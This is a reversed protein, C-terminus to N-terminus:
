QDEEGRWKFDYFGPREELIKKLYYDGYSVGKPSRGNNKTVDNIFGDNYKVVLYKWLDQWRNVVMEAENVSYNTLFDVALKPDSKHLTLAAQEVAPQVKFFKSELEQQVPKIDEYVYSYKTYSLNAVLNFVWFASEFSFEKISGFSYSPPTRNMCCYLPMYVNNYNDDVSYWFVGGIEDPLWTRMQSVFAFATQQTSVPRQWAYTNVTDDSLKWTLNKWRYPCGFPGAALGKTMDWETGEFHDRMLDIVDAVSVKKDPKIYLPYPEAGKYARWYKIDFEQSPAIRSFFRWIRNECFLLAGPDLPAYIDAFSFEASDPNWWGKKKAFSKVDKSYLCNDPDNEIIKRIRAQNAHAAVYGDPIRRAAWVAGKEEGGKGLMELIWVEKPDAVSFSEGSSYYGYEAVLDTMVNIAERATKARQMAIYMLSGYDMISNTDRLESRGGFTTEGISVQHENMNGIVSYTHKVQAIKGLYKGTDWDYIELSDGEKYDAAPHYRLPEMFGGADANYTIMTSGDASAGSSILYNTCSELIIHNTTFILFIILLAKIYRM